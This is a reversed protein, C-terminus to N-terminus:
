SSTSVAVPEAVPGQLRSKRSAVTTSSECPSSRTKWAGRFCEAFGTSTASLAQSTGLPGYRYPVTSRSSPAKRMHYWQM